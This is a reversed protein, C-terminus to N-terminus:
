VKVMRVTLHSLSPEGCGGNRGNSRDHSKAVLTM